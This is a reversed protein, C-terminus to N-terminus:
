FTYKDLAYLVSILFHYNVNLWQSITAIQTYIICLYEYSLELDLLTEFMLIASIIIEKNELLLGLWIGM